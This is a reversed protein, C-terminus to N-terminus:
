FCVKVQLTLYKRKLKVYYVYGVQDFFLYFASVLAPLAQVALLVIAFLMLLTSIQAHGALQKPSQKLRNAVRYWLARGADNQAREAQIQAAVIDPDDGSLACLRDILGESPLGKGQRYHSISQKNTDIAKALQYDSVIGANARANDLLAAINFM